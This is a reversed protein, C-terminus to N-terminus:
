KEYIALGAEQLTKGELLYNPLDYGKSQLYQYVNLSWSDKEVSFKLQEKMNNIYRIRNSESLNIVDNREGKHWIKAVEVADEDSILNLPKLILKCNDVHSSYFFSDNRMIGLLGNMGVRNLTGNQIFHERETVRFKQGIYQAFVKVKVEHTNEM